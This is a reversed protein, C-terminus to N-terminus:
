FNLSIGGRLSRPNRVLLVDGFSTRVSGLEERTLNRIDLLAEIGYFTLFDLGLFNLVGVPVPVAQRLFLNISNDATDLLNSFHDIPALPHGKPVLRVTAILRTRSHPIFTEVQTSLLHFVDKGVLRNLALGSFPLAIERELLGAAESRTYSFSARIYSGVEHKLSIRYGKQGTEEPRLHLLLNERQPNNSVALFPISARALQDQYLSFELRASGTLGFSFSGRYHRSTGVNFQNKDRSFSVSDSLNVTEGEPLVLSNGYTARKSAVVLSLQSRPTPSITLEAAPSAFFYNRNTRVQDVEFGWLVSLADGWRLRDEFGFSMTSLTGPADTLELRRDIVSPDSPWAGSSEDFSVRGYGLYVRLSHNEGLDHDFFNKLRLLSDQGSNLQGAFIYGSGGGIKELLAFNTTTGGSSDAPFILYDGGLGANTYIQFLANEFLLKDRQDELSPDPSNRFILRRHRSNRLLTKLSVNNKNDLDLNLTEQLTLLLETTRGAEVAVVSNEGRLRQNGNVRLDYSGSQVQQLLFEGKEDTRTLLPLLSSSSRNLLAVLMKPVPRGSSDQVLGKLQGSDSEALAPEDQAAWFGLVLFSLLILRLPVSQGQM